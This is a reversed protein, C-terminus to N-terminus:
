VDIKVVVWCSKYFRWGFGDPGPASQSPIASLADFVEGLSPARLLSINEEDSIISDIYQDLRPPEVSPEGQLFSSFYEVAGQHISKLTEYVVVNSRMELVRKRRKNALCAHFFKSNRDGDVKWKLKAMQALRIEEWRWWSALDSCVMHLERELNEEWNVRLQQEIEEVQKELADICGLTLGFVRKNWERLM